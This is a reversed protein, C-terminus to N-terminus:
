EPRSKKLVGHTHFVGAALLVLIAANFVVAGKGFDTVNGSLQEGVVSWLGVGTGLMFTLLIRRQIKPDAVDRVVLAMVGVGLNMSGNLRVLSMKVEEYQRCFHPPM